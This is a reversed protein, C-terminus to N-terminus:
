SAGTYYVTYDQNEVLKTGGATVSVSGKPINFANLSIESGSASKYKGRIIYKNLSTQNQAVFRTSDYLEQFVYKERDEANTLKNALNSGFPELVPFMIRGNQKNITIGEVFDFIGDPQPDNNNNLRDMEM